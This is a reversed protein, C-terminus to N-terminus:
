LTEFKVPQVTAAADFYRFSIPLFDTNNTMSLQLERGEGIQRLNSGRRKVGPVPLATPINWPFVLPPMAQSDITALVKPTGSDVIASVQVAGSTSLYWEGEWQMFAKPSIIEGFIMARTTLVTASGLVSPTGDTFCSRDACFDPYYDLYEVLHGFTSGFVLRYPRNVTDVLFMTPQWSWVGQWSNTIERAVITLSNFTDGDLPLGCLYLGNFCIACATMEDASRNFRRMYDRIPASSPEIIDFQQSVNLTRRIVRIGDQSMFWIDDAVQAVTRPAICGLTATLKQVQWGNASLQGQANTATPDCNVLWISNRKFVILFNDQYPQIQVIQDGDNTGIDISFASLWLDDNLIGSAMLTSPRGPIGAVFLRNTHWAIRSGIPIHPKQVVTKGDRTFALREGESARLSVLQYIRIAQRVVATVSLGQEIALRSLVDAHREDLQIVIDTLM